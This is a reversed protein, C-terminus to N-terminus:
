ADLSKAAFVRAEPARLRLADACREAASADHFIGFVAGGSGTMSSAIAGCNQLLVKLHAIQPYLQIASAELDNVLHKATIEGGLIKEIDHATAPGSWSERKLMKFVSATPVEIPPVAIVMHLTPFKELVEIREGIGTVRSPRPDLFFPVDAGLGVAIKRRQDISAHAKSPMMAALM